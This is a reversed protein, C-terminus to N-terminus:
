PAGIFHRRWFRLPSKISRRPDLEDPAPPPRPDDTAPAAPHPRSLYQRYDHPRTRYLRGWFSEWTVNRTADMVADWFKETKMAHWPRDLAQLNTESTPGGLLYEQVHDLDARTAPVTSGPARSFVDAARVQVRMAADPAYRTM